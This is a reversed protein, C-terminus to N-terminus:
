DFRVRINGRYRGQILESSIPNSVGFALTVRNSVGEIPFQGGYMQMPSPLADGNIAVVFPIAALEHRGSEHIFVVKDPAIEGEYSIVRPKPTTCTILVDMFLQSGVDILRGGSVTGFIRAIEQKPKNITGLSGVGVSCSEANASGFCAMAVVSCLCARLANAHTKSDCNNM